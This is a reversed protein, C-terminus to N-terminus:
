TGPTFMGNQEGELKVTEVIGHKIAAGIAALSPGDIGHASPQRAHLQAFSGALYLAVAALFMRNLRNHDIM